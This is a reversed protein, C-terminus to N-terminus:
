GPVRAVRKCARAVFETASRVTPRVVRMNVLGCFEIALRKKYSPRDPSDKLFDFESIGNKSLHEIMLLRAALGPSHLPGEVDPLRGSSYFHLRNNVVLGYLVILVQSGVTMRALVAHGPPVLQRCLTRHFETFRPAAYNGPQGKAVSRRQHLDILDNFFRDVEAASSALELRVEQEHAARLLRRSEKRNKQSLQALYGEFDATVRAIPCVGSRTVDIHYGRGFSSEWQLLPSRESIASFSLADWDDAAALVSRLSVLCIEAEGPAHLLDLYDICTEEFEQEGSSLFMLERAGLIGGRQRLYLPLVGILRSNRWVTMLRLGRGGNGYVPGYVRWWERLWEWRLAPSATPSTRFLARWEEELAEWADYDQIIQVEVGATSGPSGDGGAERTGAHHTM